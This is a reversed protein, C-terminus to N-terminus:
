HAHSLATKSLALKTVLNIDEGFGRYFKDLYSSYIGSNQGENIEVVKLTGNSLELVDLSYFDPANPAKSINEAAQQSLYRVDEIRDNISLRIDDDFKIRKTWYSAVDVVEGKYVFTRYENSVRRLINEQNALGQIYKPKKYERLILPFHFMFNHGYNMDNINMGDIILNIYRDIDDFTSIVNAAIYDVHESQNCKSLEDNLYITQLRAENKLSMNDFRVFTNEWKQELMVTGIMEKFKKRIEPYTFIDIIDFDPNVVVSRFTFSEIYPYYAEFSQVFESQEPNNVLRLGNDLCEDYFKCYESKSMIGGRFIANTQRDLTFSKNFTRAIKLTMKEKDFIYDKKFECSAIRINNNIANRVEFGITEENAGDELTNHIIVLSPNHIHKNLEPNSSFLQEQNKMSM